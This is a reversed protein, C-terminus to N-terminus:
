KCRTQFKTFIEDLISTILLLDKIFDVVTLVVYVYM